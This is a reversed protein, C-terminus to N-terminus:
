LSVHALITNGDDFLGPLFDGLTGGFDRELGKNCLVIGRSVGTNSRAFLAGLGHHIIKDLEHTLLGSAAVDSLFGEHAEVGVAVSDSRDVLVGVEDGGDQLGPAHLASSDGDVSSAKSFKLIDDELLDSLAGVTCIILALSHTFDELVKIEIAETGDAERLEAACELRHATGERLELAAGDEVLVVLVAVALKVVLLEGAPEGDTTAAVVGIDVGDEADLTLGRILNELLNKISELGTTGMADATEANDEAAHVVVTVALHVAIFEHPTETLVAVGEAWRLELANELVEVFVVVAFNAVVFEENSDATVHALTSNGEDLESVLLKVAIARAHNFEVINGLGVINSLVRLELSALHATVIDKGLEHSLPVFVHAVVLDGDLLENVVVTIYGGADILIVVELEHNPVRPVQGATLALVFVRGDLPVQHRIGIAGLADFHHSAM